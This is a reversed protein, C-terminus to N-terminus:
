SVARLVFLHGLGIGALYVYVRVPGVVTLYFAHIIM